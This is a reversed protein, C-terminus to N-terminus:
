RSELDVVLPERRARRRMANLMRLVPPRAIIRRQFRKKGPFDLLFLSAFITAIGNGPLFLMAVGAMLLLVGLANKMVVVAVRWPSRKPAVIGSDRQERRSFYDAPVRAVFWPVGVVTAVFMLTSVAVIVGLVVPQSVWDLAPRAWAPM